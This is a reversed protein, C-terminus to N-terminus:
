GINELLDRKVIDEGVSTRYLGFWTGTPTDMQGNFIPDETNGSFQSRHEQLGKLGVELSTRGLKTILQDWDLYIKNESYNHLYVKKAHALTAARSVAIHNPHGYEGTLGHSVIVDPDLKLTMESVYSFFKDKGWINWVCELDKEFCCDQFRPFILDGSLGYIQCAREMEKERFEIGATAIVVVDVTCLESYYPILGRFYTEDDPHALLVVLKINKLM